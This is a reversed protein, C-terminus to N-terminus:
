KDWGGSNIINVNSTDLKDQLEKIISDKNNMYDEGILQLLMDREEKLTNLSEEENNFKSKRTRLFTALKNYDQRVTSNSFEYTAETLVQELRLKNCKNVLMIIVILEVVALVILAIM